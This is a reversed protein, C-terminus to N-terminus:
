RDVEDLVALTDDLLDGDPESCDNWCEYWQSLLEKLQEIEVATSNARDAARLGMDLIDLQLQDHRNVIVQLENSPIQRWNRPSSM